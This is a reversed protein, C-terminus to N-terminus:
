LKRLIAAFLGFLLGQRASGFLFFISLNSQRKFLYLYNFLVVDTLGGNGFNPQLQREGTAAYSVLLLKTRVRDTARGDANTAGSFRRIPIKSTMDIRDMKRISDAVDKGNWFSKQVLQIIYDKVTQYTATQRVEKGIRHPIFKMEPANSSANYTKPKNDRSGRGQGGQGQGRSGDFGRGGARYSIERGMIWKIMKLVLEWVAWHNRWKRREISLTSLYLGVIKLFGSLKLVLGFLLALVLADIQLFFARINGNRADNQRHITM